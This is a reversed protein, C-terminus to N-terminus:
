PKESFEKAMKPYLDILENTQFKGSRPRHGSPQSAARKDTTSGANKGNENFLAEHHRTPEWSFAGLGRREPAHFVIENLQRKHYGYEAAILGFQPFRTALDDFTENWNDPSGTDNCSLGIVDCPVHHDVLYQVWKRAAADARGKDSHVCVLIKPDVDRAAAIGSKLLEAFNDPHLRMDGDPFLMGNSVENGIQVMLPTTGQAKLASLVEHTHDYVANKLSPFSLSEWAVPKAQKNPAAWTDSYHLDILLQMGADHVRKAVALTHALDCYPEKSTRAYGKPSGPNVFVRLRIANFGHDKFIKFVDEQKGHDFYTSGNAEDEQVWSLDAGILYPGARHFPQNSPAAILQSCVTITAAFAFAFRM